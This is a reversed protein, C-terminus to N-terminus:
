TSGNDGKMAQVYASGVQGGNAPRQPVKAKDQYGPAQVGEIEAICWSDGENEFTVMLEFRDGQAVAEEVMSRMAQTPQIRWTNM